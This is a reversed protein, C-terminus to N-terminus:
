CGFDKHDLGEREDNIHDAKKSNSDGVILREDEKHKQIEIAGEILPNQGWVVKGAKNHDM